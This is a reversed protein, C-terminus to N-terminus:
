ADAKLNLRASSPANLLHFIICAEDDHLVSAETSIQPSCIFVFDFSLKIKQHSTYLTYFIWTGIIKLM